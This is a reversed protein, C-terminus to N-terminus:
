KNRKYKHKNLYLYVLFGSSFILLSSGFFLKTFKYWFGTTISNNDQDSKEDDGIESQPIESEKKKLNVRKSFNKMSADAKARKNRLEEFLGPNESEIDKCNAKARAVVNEAKDLDGLTMYCTMLRLYSKSFTPSKPLIYNEDIVISDKYNEIRIYCSSLNSLIKILESNIESLVPDTEININSPVMKLIAGIEQILENYIKIADSIRNKRLENANEKYKRINVLFDKYNIQKIELTSESNKIVTNELKSCFNKVYESYSLNYEKLIIPKSPQEPAHIYSHINKITTNITVAPEKLYHITEDSM